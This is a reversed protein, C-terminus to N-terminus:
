LFFIGNQGSLNGHPSTSLPQLLLPFHTYYAPIPFLYLLCFSSYIDGRSCGRPMNLRSSSSVHNKYKYKQIAPLDMSWPNRSRNPFLAKNEIMLWGPLFKSKWMSVKKEYVADLHTEFLLLYKLFPESLISVSLKKRLDVSLRVLREQLWPIMTSRPTTFENM